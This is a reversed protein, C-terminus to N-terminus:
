TACCGRRPMGPASAGFRGQRPGAPQSSVPPDFALGGSSTIPQVDTQLPTSVAGQPVMVVVGSDQPLSQAQLLARRQPIRYDRGRPRM